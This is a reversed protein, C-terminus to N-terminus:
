MPHSGSATLRRFSRGSVGMLEMSISKCNPQTNQSYHCRRGINTLESTPRSGKRYYSEAFVACLTLQRRDPREIGPLCRGAALWEGVSKTSPVAPATNWKGLYLDKGHAYGPKTPPHRRGPRLPAKVSM